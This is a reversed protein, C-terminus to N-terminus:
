EKFMIQPASSPTRLTRIIPLLSTEDFSKLCSCKGDHSSMEDEIGGSLSSIFSSTEFHAFNLMSDFKGCHHQLESHYKKYLYRKKQCMYCNHVSAEHTLTLPPTIVIDECQDNLGRMSMSDNNTPLNFFKAENAIPRPTTSLNKSNNYICLLDPTLNKNSSEEGKLWYTKMEGKGKIFTMGREECVYSGDQALLLNTASSIHIKRAESTSEMRSACNVTDGFLCYRPMKCGVVGAVVSGSHIGIRIQFLEGPRHRIELKVIRQLIMLALSAIKSAHDSNRIPLGSVVMYADGITETCLFFHHTLDTVNLLDSIQRVLKTATM